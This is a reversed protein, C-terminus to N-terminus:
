RRARRLVRARRLPTAIRVGPLSPPLGNCALLPALMRASVPGSVATPSARCILEHPPTWTLQSVFCLEPNVIQQSIPWGSSGNPVLSTMGIDLYSVGTRGIILWFILSKNSESLASRL